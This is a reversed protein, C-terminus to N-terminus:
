FVKQIRALDDILLKSSNNVEKQLAKRVNHQQMILQLRRLAVARQQEGGDETETDVIFDSHLLIDEVANGGDLISELKEYEYAESDNGGM